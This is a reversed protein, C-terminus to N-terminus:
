QKIESERRERRALPWGRGAAARRMRAHPMDPSQVASSVPDALLRTDCGFSVVLHLTLREFTVRVGAFLVFVLLGMKRKRKGRAIFSHVGHGLEDRRALGVARPPGGEARRDVLVGDAWQAM